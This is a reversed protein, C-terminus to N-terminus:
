VEDANITFAWDGQGDFTSTGDTTVVTAGVDVWDGVGITVSSSLLSTGDAVTPGYGRADNVASGLGGSLSASIELPNNGQDNAIRFIQKFTYESDQSLDQISVKLKGNALTAHQSVSPDLRLLANDDTVVNAEVSRDNITASSFAGTGMAAAGGAAISGLGLVFKRRDM